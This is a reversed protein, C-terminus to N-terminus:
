KPEEPPRDEEWPKPIGEPWNITNPDVKRHEPPIDLPVADCIFIASGINDTYSPLDAQDPNM